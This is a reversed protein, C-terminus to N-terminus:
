INSYRWEDFLYPGFGSRYISKLFQKPIIMDTVINLIDLPAAIGKLTKFKEM